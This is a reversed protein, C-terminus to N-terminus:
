PKINRALEMARGQNIEPHFTSIFAFVELQKFRKQRDDNTGDYMPKENRLYCVAGCARETIQEHALNIDRACPNCFQLGRPVSEGCRRCNKTSRKMGKYVVGFLCGQQKMAILAM